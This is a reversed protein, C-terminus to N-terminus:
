GNDDDPESDYAQASYLRGSDSYRSRAANHSYALATLSYDSVDKSKSIGRMYVIRDKKEKSGSKVRYTWRGKLSSPASGRAKAKLKTQGTVWAGACVGEDCNSDSIAIFPLMSFTTFLCTILAVGFRRCM